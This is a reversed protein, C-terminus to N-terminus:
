ILANLQVPATPLATLPIEDTASVVLQTGDAAHVALYELRLRLLSSIKTTM